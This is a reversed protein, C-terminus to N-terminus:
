GPFAAAPTQGYVPNYGLALTAPRGAGCGDLDIDYAAQEPRTADVIRGLRWVGPEDIDTSPERVKFVALATPPKEARNPRVRAWLSRLRARELVGVCCCIGVLLAGLLAAIWPGTQDSAPAAPAEGDPVAPGRAQKTAEAMGPLNSVEEAISQKLTKSAAVSAVVSKVPVGEPVHIISSVKAGAKFIPTVSSPAIGNGAADAIQERIVRGMERMLAVNGKLKDSDINTLTMSVMVEPLKSDPTPTVSTQLPKLDAAARQGEFLAQSALAQHVRQMEVEDLIVKRMEFRTAGLREYMGPTACEFFHVPDGNKPRKGPTGVCLGPDRASRITIDGKPRHLYFTVPDNEGMYHLDAMNLKKVGKVWAEGNWVSFGASGKKEAERMVDGLPEADMQMVDSEDPLDYHEYKLWTPEESNVLFRVHDFSGRRGVADCSWLQLKYGQPSDLCLHPAEVPRIPGGIGVPFYFKTFLDKDLPCDWVELVSGSKPKGLIHLCKYPHAVSTFYGARYMGTKGGEAACGVCSNASDSLQVVVSSSLSTPMRVGGHSTLLLGAAGALGGLACLGAATRCAGLWQRGRPPRSPGCPSGVTPVVTYSDAERGGSALTVAEALRAPLSPAAGQRM